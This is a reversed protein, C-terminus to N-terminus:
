SLIYQITVNAKPIGIVGKKRLSFLVPIIIIVIYNLQNIIYTVLQTAALTADLFMHVYSIMM